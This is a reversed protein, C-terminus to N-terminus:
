EDFLSLQKGQRAPREQSCPGPARQSALQDLLKEIDAPTRVPIAGEGLLMSTGASEPLDEPWPVAAVLRGQKRSYDATVLAGGRSRSQVVVVARALGSTLRNRAMLTPVSPETYPGVESIVAGHSAIETELGGTARRDIALLGCGVVAITRGGARLAGRHAAQDIGRALGSVVTVGRRACTAALESALALADATANRTGVIAVAPDDINLWSGYVSVAWPPNPIERLPVPYREDQRFVVHIYRREAEEWLSEYDSLRMRLGGIGRAQQPTLRLGSALLEDATAELAARASGFAAILKELGASGVLGSWLLALQALRESDFRM